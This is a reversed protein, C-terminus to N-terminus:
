ASQREKEAIRARLRAVTEGADLPHTDGRDAEEIGVAIDTRLRALKEAGERMGEPSYHAIAEARSAFCSAEVLADAAKSQEPTLSTKM